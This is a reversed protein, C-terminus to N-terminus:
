SNYHEEIVEMVRLAVRLRGDDLERKVITKLMDLSSMEVMEQQVNSGWVDCGASRLNIIAQNHTQDFIDMQHQLDIVMRGGQDVIDKAEKLGLGTLERIAKITIVKGNVAYGGTGVSEVRNFEHPFCVTMSRYKM